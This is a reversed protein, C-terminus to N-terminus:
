WFKFICGVWKNKIIVVGFFLVWVCKFVKVLSDLIKIFLFICLFNNCVDDGFFINVIILWVLLLVVFFFFVFVLVLVCCIVVIFVFWFVLLDFM